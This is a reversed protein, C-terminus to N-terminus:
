EKARSRKDFLPLGLEALLIKRQVEREQDAPLMRLGPDKKAVDRCRDCVYFKGPKTKKARCIACFFLLLWRRRCEACLGNPNRRRFLAARRQRNSPKNRCTSCM